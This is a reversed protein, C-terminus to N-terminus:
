FQSASIYSETSLETPAPVLESFIKRGKLLKSGSPHQNDALNQIKKDIQIRIKEPFQALDAQASPLIEIKYKL